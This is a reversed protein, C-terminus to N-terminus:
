SKKYKELMHNLQMMARVFLLLSFADGQFIGKYIEVEALTKSGATLEVKWNKMVEM